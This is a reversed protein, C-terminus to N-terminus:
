SRGVTEGQRRMWEISGSFERRGNIFEVKKGSDRRKRHDVRSRLLSEKEEL